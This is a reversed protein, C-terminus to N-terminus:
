HSLSMINVSLLRNIIWGSGQLYVRDITNDFNRIVDDIVTERAILPLVFLPVVKSMPQGTVLVNGRGQNEYKCFNIVYDISIDATTNIVNLTKSIIFIFADRATGDRTAPDTHLEYSKKSLRNNVSQRFTYNNSVFDSTNVVRPQDLNPQPQNATRRINNGLGTQEVQSSHESYIHYSLRFHSSFPVGCCFTSVKSDDGNFSNFFPIDNDHEKIIHEVFKNRYSTSYQCSRCQYKM